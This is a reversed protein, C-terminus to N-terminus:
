RSHVVVAVRLAFSSPAKLRMNWVDGFKARAYPEVLEIDWLGSLPM